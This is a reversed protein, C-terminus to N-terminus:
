GNVTECLTLEAPDCVLCYDKLFDALPINMPKLADKGLGGFDKSIRTMDKNKAVDRWPVASNDWRWKDCFYTGGRYTLLYGEEDIRKAAQVEINAAATRAM